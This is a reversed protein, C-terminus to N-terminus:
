ELKNILDTFGAAERRNSYAGISYHLVEGQNNLIIVTPYAKSRTKRENCISSVFDNMENLYVFNKTQIKKNKLCNNAVEDSLESLFVYAVDKKIAGALSDLWPMEKICPKCTISWINIYYYKKSLLNPNSQKLKKQFLSLGESWKTKSIKQFGLSSNVMNGFEKNYTTKIDERILYVNLLISLSLAIGLIWKM